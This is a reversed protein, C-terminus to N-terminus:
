PTADENIIRMVRQTIDNVEQRTIQRTTQFVLRILVSRQGPKSPRDGLLRQRATAPLQDVPTADIVQVDALLALEEESLAARVRDGILEPDDTSLAVSIDRQVTNGAPVPRYPKLHRMQQAVRPDDSRLLRIDPIGKRLMVARDLGLGLLLGSANRPMGNRRLLERSALGAELIEVPGDPTEVHVEVGGETYPHRTPTVTYRAGPLISRVVNDVMRLLDARRYRRGQSIAYIDVQTPTGVHRRDVSDRRYVLGPVVYTGSRGRQALARLIGPLASTMQSRLMRSDDVYKSYRSGRAIGDVPYLLNDYNDAVAVIPSTRVVQVPRGSWAGVAQQISALMQGMAHDPAESLDPIALQRQLETQTLVQDPRSAFQRRAQRARRRQGAGPRRPEVQRRLPGAPQDQQEPPPPAAGESPRYLRPRAGASPIVWWRRGDPGLWPQGPERGKCGTLLGLLRGQHLSKYKQRLSILDM